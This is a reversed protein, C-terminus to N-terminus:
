AASGALVALRTGAPVARELVLEVADPDLWGGSLRRLLARAEEDEIAARFPRSSRMAVYSDVVQMLLSERTCTWPKGHTPYGKGDARMHHEYALVGPLCSVGLTGLLVRAGNAAHDRIVAFVERPLREPCELLVDAVFTMGIDALLAAEALRRAEQAGCGSARAVAIMVRGCNLGHAVLSERPTRGSVLPLAEILGDGSSRSLGLVVEEITGREIRRYALISDWVSELAVLLDEDSAAAHTAPVLVATAVGRAASATGTSVPQTGTRVPRRNTADIEYGPVPEHGLLADILRRTESADRDDAVAFRRLSVERAARVLDDFLPSPLLTAPAEGLRACKADFDLEFVEGEALAALRDVLARERRAREPHGAPYLRAGKLALLVATACALADPRSFDNM